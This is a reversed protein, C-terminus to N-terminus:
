AVVLDPFDGPAFASTISADTVADLTDPRWRPSRDKDILAARIGEFFDDGAMCMQTLRYEMTVCDDYCMDAGRRLAALSLKISTPSQKRIIAAAAMAPEHETGDLRTLIDGVGNGTFCRDIWARQAALSPEGLTADFGTLVADVVGTAPGQTWDAESLRDLVANLRDRHVGHTAYGSYLCDAADCRYATLALYTGIEGPCRPLFWTGGVDPFLGIGVEPMAFLAAETVVRHSGHVSLGVGGGMSIGDILSVYPKPFTHIQHNLRYEHQFFTQTLGSGAKRKAALGDRYVAVVDGGACFARDGAGRIVVAAVQDDCAWEALQPRILGIMPLTLANLAKPRDLTILGLRGVRDFSVGVDEAPREPAVASVRNSDAM